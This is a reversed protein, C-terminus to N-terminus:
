YWGRDGVDLLWGVGESLRCLSPTARLCMVNHNHRLQRTEYNLAAIPAKEGAMTSQGSGGVTLLLRASKSATILGM